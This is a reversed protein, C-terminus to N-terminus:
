SLLSGLMEEKTIMENIRMVQKNLCASNNNPSVPHPDSNPCLPIKTKDASKIDFHFLNVEM